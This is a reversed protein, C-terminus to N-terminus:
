GDVERMINNFKDLNMTVNGPVPFECHNEEVNEKTQKALEYMSIKKGGVNVIGAIDNDVLKTLRKAQKQVYDFNGIQNIWAGDHPFPECKHGMRSILYNKSFSEIYGDALLKTYGYWTNCHVPVGEETVDDESYTYLYDTSIQVLKKDLRNIEEVLKVVFKYNVEVM